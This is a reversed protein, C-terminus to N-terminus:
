KSIMIVESTSYLDDIQAVMKVGLTKTYLRRALSDARTSVLVAKIAQGSGALQHEVLRLSERILREAYGMGQHRKLMAIQDLELVVEPRFGSKQAWFIYGAIETEVQVVYCNFRPEAALTSSVWLESNQQRAFAERHITAIATSDSISAKRIDLDMRRVLVACDM